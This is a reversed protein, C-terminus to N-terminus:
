LFPWFVQALLVVIAEALYPPSKYIDGLTRQAFIGKFTFAHAGQTGGRTERLWGMSLLKFGRGLCPGGSGSPDCGASMHDM